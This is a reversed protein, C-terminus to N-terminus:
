EAEWILGIILTAVALLAAGVRFPYLDFDPFFSSDAFLFFNNVALFSFSIAAWLLLRTRTKHWSRVLLAACIACTLLCLLYVLAPGTM